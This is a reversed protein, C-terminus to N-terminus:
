DDNVWLMVRLLALIASNSSKRFGFDLLIAVECDSAEMMSCITVLTISSATEVEM